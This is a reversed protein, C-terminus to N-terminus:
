TGDQGSDGFAIKELEHRAIVTHRSGERGLESRMLVLNTVRVEQVAIGAEQNVASLERSNRSERIRAITLHPRFLRQDRPQGAAECNQEVAEYLRALEHSPDDIGIWLVKPKGSTPFVGCGGVIIEFPAVADATNKIAQSISEVSALPVDGLFKLTLHLNAERVWSARAGPVLCRLRNIHESVRQRLTAPLEIAIFLRRSESEDTM